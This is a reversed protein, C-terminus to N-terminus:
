VGTARARANTVETLVTREQTAYGQVTAVLNPILDARRQYDAQVDGWKAKAVEQKTPIDNVGCAALSLPLVVLAAIRGLRQLLRNM